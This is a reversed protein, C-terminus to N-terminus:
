REVARGCTKLTHIAAYIVSLRFSRESNGYFNIQVVKHSFSTYLVFPVCKVNCWANM